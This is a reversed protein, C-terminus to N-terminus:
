GQLHRQLLCPLTSAEECRLKAVNRIRSRLTEDQALYERALSVIEETESKEPLASFQRHEAYELVRSLSATKHSHTGLFICPTGGLSALISPHYRGSIFLRAHALIAGCTLISTSAPVIGVGKQVAVKHLFSDPLDNETLVVQYGLQQIAEVLQSYSEVARDPYWGALAGGGICIYPLSFDLKGWYEEKEPFPLVFDGNAPLQSESKQLLPFWSFLSDPIISSNAEPMEAQVYALSEPDRLTVHRCKGLLQRYSNLTTVNRGTEPCDSIMSNVLFVPKGLRMGLEMMALFFLATRRPPTSFIVDGDGDIVILDAEATQDFIRALEPVSDKHAIINDASISPDESIFDRAGYLEELKIYWSFPRRSRRKLLSRFHRYYRQPMMTGVYGTEATTLDFYETTISGSVEFASNFLQRLAISAGRGWNVGNRNDGIFFIKPKM